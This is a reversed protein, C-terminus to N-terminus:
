PTNRQADIANFIGDRIWNQHHPSPSGKDEPPTGECEQMVHFLEHVLSSDRWDGETPTGVVMYKGTCASFGSIMTKNDWPALFDQKAKSYARWGMMKRCNEVTDSLRPDTTFTAADLAARVGRNVVERTLGSPALRDDYDGAAVMDCSQFGEGPPIAACSSLVWLVALCAWFLASARM